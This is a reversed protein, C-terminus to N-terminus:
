RSSNRRNGGWFVNNVGGRRNIEKMDSTSILGTHGDFHDLEVDAVAVDPWSVQVRAGPM